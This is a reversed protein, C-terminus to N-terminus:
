DYKTRGNTVLLNSFFSLWSRITVLLLVNFQSQPNINLCFFFMSTLIFGRQARTALFGEIAM